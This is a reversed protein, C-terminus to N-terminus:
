ERNTPLTLHTYSVPGFGALAPDGEDSRNGGVGGAHVAALIADGLGGEAHGHREIRLAQRLHADLDELDAGADDAGVHDGLHFLRVVLLDGGAQERLAAHAFRAVDGFGDAGDGVPQQIVGGALDEVDVAAEAQAAQLGYRLRGPQWTPTRASTRRFM